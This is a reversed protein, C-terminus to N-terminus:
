RTMFKVRFDGAKLLLNHTTPTLNGNVHVLRFRHIIHAAFSFFEVQALKKGICNRLGTSFICVRPDRVFRGNDDIFHSPNFQHPSDFNAPDHMIATFSGRVMTCPPILHGGIDVPESTLHPLSDGIPRFRFIEDLTACLYPCADERYQRYQDYCRDLEDFCREQVDTYLSLILSMWRMTQTLTDGAGVYLQWMSLAISSYGIDHNQRNELILFDLFDRPNDEDLLSM